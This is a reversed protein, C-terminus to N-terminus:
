HVTDLEPRVTDRSNNDESVATSKFHVELRLFDSDSCLAQLIAWAYYMNSTKLTDTTVVKHVVDRIIATCGQESRLLVKKADEDSLGSYKHLDAEMTETISNTYEILNEINPV